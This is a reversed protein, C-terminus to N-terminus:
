LEFLLRLAWEDRLAIGNKQQVKLDEYILRLSPLIRFEARLLSDEIRSEVKGQTSYSVKTSVPAFRQGLRFRWVDLYPYIFGGTILSKPGDVQTSEIRWFEGWLGLSYIQYMPLQSRFGIGNASIRDYFALDHQFHTIYADTWKTKSTLSVACPHSDARESRQDSGRFVRGEFCSGELVLSLDKFAHLRLVAGVDIGKDGKFLVDYYQPQSLFYNDEENLWGVPYFQQGVRASFFYEEEFSLDLFAQAIFFESEDDFAEASLEIFFGLEKQVQYNLGLSLERIESKRPNEARQLRSEKTLTDFFVSYSFKSDKSEPEESFAFASILSLLVIISKIWM